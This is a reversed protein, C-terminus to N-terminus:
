FGDTSRLTAVGLEGDRLQLGVYEASRRPQGPLPQFISLEAETTKQSPSHKGCQMTGTEVENKM